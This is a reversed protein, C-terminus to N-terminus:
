DRAIEKGVAVRWLEQLKRVIVNRQAHFIESKDDIVSIVRRPGTVANTIFIEDATHLNESPWAGERVSLNERQAIELILARGIGPLAGCSLAPTCLEGNSLWFLNSRAGECLHGNSDCYIAEDCGRTQAQQWLWQWPAYSTSKVGCLPRNASIQQPSLWLKIEDPAPQSKIASILLSAGNDERWRNDGSGYLTLRAIGTEIANARIIEDCAREITADDFPCILNLQRGDRRLRACHRPLWLPRARQIGLTSFVGWGSLNAASLPSTQAQTAACIQHDLWVLM